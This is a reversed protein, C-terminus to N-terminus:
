VTTTSYPKQPEEDMDLLNGGKEQPKTPQQPEDM